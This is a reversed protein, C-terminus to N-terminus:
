LHVVVVGPPTAKSARNLEVLFNDPSVDAPEGFLAASAKAKMSLVRSARYSAFFEDDSDDSDSGSDRTYDPLRQAKDGQTTSEIVKGRMDGTASFSASPTTTTVGRTMEDIKKMQAARDRDMQVRMRMKADKYDALVGKPGTHHGGKLIRNDPRSMAISSSGDSNQLRMGGSSANPPMPPFSSEAEPEPDGEDDRAKDDEEWADREAAREKREDVGIDKFLMEKELGVLESGM